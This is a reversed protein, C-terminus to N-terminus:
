DSLRDEIAQLRRDIRRLEIRLAKMDEQTAPLRDEVASRVSRRGRDLNREAGKLLDDVAEAVGGAADQARDRTGV